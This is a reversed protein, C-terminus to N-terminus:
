PEAAGGKGAVIVSFILYELLPIYQQGTIQMTITKNNFSQPMSHGTPQIIVM